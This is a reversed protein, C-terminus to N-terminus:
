VDVGAYNGLVDGGKRIFNNRNECCKYRMSAAHRPLKFRTTTFYRENVTQQRGNPHNRRAKVNYM